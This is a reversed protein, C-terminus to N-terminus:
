FLLQLTVYDGGEKRRYQEAREIFYHGNYEIRADSVFMSPVVVKSSILFVNLPGFSHEIVWVSSKETFDKATKCPSQHFPLHNAINFNGQQSRGIAIIGASGVTLVQVQLATKVTVVMSLDIIDDPRTLKGLFSQIASQISSRDKVLELEPTAQFLDLVFRVLALSMQADKTEALASVKLDASSGVAVNGFVKSVRKSMFMTHYKAFCGLARKLFVIRAENHGQSIFAVSSAMNWPLLTGPLPDSTSPVMGFEGVSERIKSTMFANGLQDEAVFLSKIMNIQNYFYVGILTAAILVVVLIIPGKLSVKRSRKRKTAM